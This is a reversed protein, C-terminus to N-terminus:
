TKQRKRRKFEAINQKVILENSRKSQKSFFHMSSEYTSCFLSIHTPELSSRVTWILLTASDENEGEKCSSRFKNNDGLDLGSELIAFEQSVANIM